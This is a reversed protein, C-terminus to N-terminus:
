KERLNGFQLQMIKGAPKRISATCNFLLVQLYQLHIQHGKHTSNFLLAERLSGLQLQNVDGRYKRDSAAYFQIAFGGTPKRVSATWFKIIVTQLQFTIQGGPKRDSFSSVISYHRGRCTAVQLPLTLGEAPKLVAAGGLVQSVFWRCREDQLSTSLLIIILCLM